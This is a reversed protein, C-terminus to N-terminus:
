YFWKKVKFLVMMVECFGVHIGNSTNSATATSAKNVVETGPAIGVSPKSV